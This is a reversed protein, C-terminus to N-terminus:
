SLLKLGELPNQVASRMEILEEFAGATQVLTEFTFMVEYRGIKKRRTLHYLIQHFFAMFIYDVFGTEM